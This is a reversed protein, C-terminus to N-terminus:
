AIVRDRFRVPPTDWDLPPLENQTVSHRTTRQEKIPSGQGIPDDLDILNSDSPYPLNPLRPAGVEGVSSDDKDKQLSLNLSPPASAVVENHEEELNSKKNKKINKKTEPSVSRGNQTVSHENQTVSDGNQTASHWAILAEDDIVYVTTDDFRRTAKILGKELLSKRSSYYRDKKFGMDACAVDWTSWMGDEGRSAVTMLFSKDYVDLGRSDRVKWIQEMMNM